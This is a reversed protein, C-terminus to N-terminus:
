REITLVVFPKAEVHDPMDDHRFRCIHKAMEVPIDFYHDVNSADSADQRARCADRIESFGQPLGGETHLHRLGQDSDHAICWLRRGDEWGSAISVMAHEEVECTIVEATRSIRELSAEELGPVNVDNYLVLYWGSPLVCGVVDSEPISERATTQTLGLESLVARQEKGRVALWSVSFGVIKVGSYQQGVELVVGRGVALISYQDRIVL